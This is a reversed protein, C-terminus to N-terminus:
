GVVLYQAPSVCHFSARSPLWPFSLDERSLSPASVPFPLHGTRDMGREGREGVLCRRERKSHAPACHRGNNAQCRNEAEQEQVSHASCLLRRLVRLNRWCKKIVLLLSGQASRAHVLRALWTLRQKVTTFNHTAIDVRPRCAPVCGGAFTDMTNRKALAISRHPCRCIIAHVGLLRYSGPGHLPSKAGARQARFGRQVTSHAFQGLSRSSIHSKRNAQASYIVGLLCAVVTPAPRSLCGRTRPKLM